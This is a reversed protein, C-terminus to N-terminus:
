TWKSINNTLTIYFVKKTICIITNYVTSGSTTRCDNTKPRSIFLNAWSKKQPFVPTGMIKATCGKIKVPNNLYNGCRHPM